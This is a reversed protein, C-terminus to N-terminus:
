HEMKWQIEDENEDEDGKEFAVFDAQKSIENTHDNTSYNISRLSSDKVTNMIFITEDNENENENEDNKQRRKKRSKVAEKRAVKIKWIEDITKWIVKSDEIFTLDEVFIFIEQKTFDKIRKLRVKKKKRAIVEKSLIDDRKMRWIRMFNAHKKKKMTENKKRTREAIAELAAERTLEKM